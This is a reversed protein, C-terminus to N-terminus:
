QPSSSKVNTCSPITEGSAPGPMRIEFTTNLKNVTAKIMEPMPAKKEIKVVGDVITVETTLLILWLAGITGIKLTKGVTLRNDPWNEVCHLVFQEAQSAEAAMVLLWRALTVSNAASLEQGANHNLYSVLVGVSEDRSPLEDLWPLLESPLTSRAQFLEAHFFQAARVISIDDALAIAKIAANM